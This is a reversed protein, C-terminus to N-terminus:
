SLIAKRRFWLIAGGMFLLLLGLSLAQGALVIPWKWQETPIAQGWYGMIHFGYVRYFGPLFPQLRPWFLDAIEGAIMLSLGAVVAPGTRDLWAGVAYAATVLALFPLFSVAHALLVHSTMVSATRYVKDIAPYKVDDLGFLLFAGLGSVLAVAVFVVLTALALVGWKALLLEHRRVPRVLLIRWTGLESERPLSTAALAVLLFLAVGQGLRGGKVWALHGSPREVVAEGSRDAKQIGALRAGVEVAFVGLLCAALIALFGVWVTRLRVLKGAELRAAHFLRGIM